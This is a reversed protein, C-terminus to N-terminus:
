CSTGYYALLFILDNADILGGGTLDGQPDSEADFQLWTLVDSVNVAGDGNLDCPCSGVCDDTVDNNELLTTPDFGGWPDDGLDCFTNGSFATLNFESGFLDGFCDGEIHATNGSWLSSIVLPDCNLPVLGGGSVNAENAIVTCAEMALGTPTGGLHVPNEIWALIGGGIWSSNATVDVGDLTLLSSSADDGTPAFSLGGGLSGASNGRIQCNTLEGGGGANSTISLGGGMALAVNSTFSTGLVELFDSGGLLTIGSRVAGAEVQVSLGGGNGGSFDPDGAINGDFQCNAFQVGGGVELLCAAGGGYDLSDNQSFTSTLVTGLTLGSIFLGGGTPTGQLGVNELDDMNAFGGTTSNATFTSGDIQFIHYDTEGPGPILALGGGLSASNGTMTCASVVTTMELGRRPGGADDFGILCVAGGVSPGNEATNTSFSSNTLSLSSSSAMVAGGYLIDNESVTTVANAQFSCQDISLGPSQLIGIAGGGYSSWGGLPGGLVEVVVQNVDFDCAEIAVESAYGGIAGGLTSAGSVTNGAFWCEEVQSYCLYLSVAGGYGAASNNMFNCRYLRIDAFVGAVAGGYLSNCELFLSDHVDLQGSVMFIGAGEGSFAEADEDSDLYYFSCADVMVIANPHSSFVGMGPVGVADGQSFACRDMTLQIASDAYVCGGAEPNKGGGRRGSDPGSGDAVFAIDRLFVKQGTGGTISVAAFAGGSWRINEGEAAQITIALDGIEVHETFDDFSATEYLEITDNPSAADLASQITAYPQGDGVSLVAGHAEAAALGFFAV